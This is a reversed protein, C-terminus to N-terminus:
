PAMTSAPAVGAELAARLPAPLTKRRKAARRLIGACAKATLYFQSPLDGTKELIDLLSCVVAGNRSESTNLTLFGGAIGIGSSRLMVSSHESTGEATAQYSEM